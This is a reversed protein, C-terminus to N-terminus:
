LSVESVGLAFSVEATVGVAASLEDTGLTFSVESAVGVAQGTQDAFDAPVPAVLLPVGELEWPVLTLNEWWSVWSDWRTVEM